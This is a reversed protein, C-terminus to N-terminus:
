ELNSEFIKDTLKLSQLRSRVNVDFIKEYEEISNIKTLGMGEFLHNENMVDFM